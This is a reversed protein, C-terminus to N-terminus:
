RLVRQEQPLRGIRLMLRYAVASAAGGIALVVVGAPQNYPAVAGERTALIALVVWPAAVALRAASVTWSQRAELEGRTRADERLFTSLTRLLRGLDSGGVERTIRLSEVLRDAVPDALRDKLRSLSEAFRGTARYDEAFETFAPRLQEPGREGLQGLAEPLSLGARVGSALNDVVEPWVERLDARRREARYRVLALPGWSAMLAFCLAIWPAASLLYVVAFVGVGAGACLALLSRVSVSRVGAQVLADELGTTWRRVAPRPETDPVWCSWWICFAGLGAVLGLALGEGTSM